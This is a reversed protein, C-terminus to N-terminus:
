SESEMESEMETAESEMETEANEASDEVDQVEDNVTDEGECAAAGFALATALAAAAFKNTRIKM